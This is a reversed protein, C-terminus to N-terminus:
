PIKYWWKIEEIIKETDMIKEFEMIKDIDMNKSGCLKIMTFVVNCWLFLEWQCRHWPCQM